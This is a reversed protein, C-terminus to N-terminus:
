KVKRNNKRLMKNELYNIGPHKKEIQKNIEAEICSIVIDLEIYKNRLEKQRGRLEGIKDALHRTKVTHINQAKKM